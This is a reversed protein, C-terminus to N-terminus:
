ERWWSKIIVTYRLGAWREQMNEVQEAEVDEALITCGKERYADMLKKLISDGITECRAFVTDIQDWDNVDPYGDVVAFSTEREKWIGSSQKSYANRFGEGVVCPYDCVNRLGQYFEHAEGRFFHKEGEKAGILPNNAAEERLVDYFDIITDNKM